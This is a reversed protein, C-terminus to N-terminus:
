SAAFLAKQVEPLFLRLFEVSPDEQLSEDGRPMEHVIYLKYLARSGAFTWRPNEPAKWTGADSWTWFIRLHTALSAQVRRFHGVKFEAPAPGEDYAFSEKTPPDALTFGIGGYCVDPTHVSVPGPRGCVMLVSLTTDTRRNTYRRMLYGAIDAIQFHRPDMKEEHSEWEGITRPVRELKAASAQPEDSIAWRDTWLGHVVGLSLLILLALVIPLMRMM